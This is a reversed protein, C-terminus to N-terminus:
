NRRHIRHRVRRNYFSPVASLVRVSVRFDAQPTDTKRVFRRRRERWAITTPPKNTIKHRVRGDCRRFDRIRRERRTKRVFM